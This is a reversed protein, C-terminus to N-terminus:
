NRVVAQGSSATGGQVVRELTVSVQVVSASAFRVQPDSLFTRVKFQSTGVARSLDIPDTEAFAVQKVRSEPGVIKLSSPRAEETAVRYGAPPPTAYRVRVPVDATTRREFRLRVQAPVARILSVGVPLNVNDSEITFTQECPENISGLDFMVRRDTLDVNHLRASPGQIELYVRRPLESSPELNPPMNQFEVPVSVSTVLDPSGMFTVWLAFAAALAFLQWGIKEALNRIM